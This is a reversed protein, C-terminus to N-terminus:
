QRKSVGSAWNGCASNALASPLCWRRTGPTPGPQPRTGQPTGALQTGAPLVVSPKTAPPAAIRLALEKKNGGQRCEVRLPGKVTHVTGEIWDLGGLQPRVDFEAFGPATPRLGLIDGYLVFLPATYNQCWAGGGGPTPYWEESLTNNLRVSKMSGYRERLDRVVAEARGYRSLALLRWAANGPHSFGMVGAPRSVPYFSETRKTSPSALLDLIHSEEGEPVVGYLLALSLTLEHLRHEGDDRVRPLNDVLSSTKAHGTDLGEASRCDRDARRRYKKPM